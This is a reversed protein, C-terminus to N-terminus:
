AIHEQRQTAAECQLGEPTLGTQKAIRALMRPGLQEGDHFAFVFDSYGARSLTRHSGTQRKVHWGLRMLAQLLVRSSGVALSEGRPPCSSILPCPLPEGNEVHETPVRLALVEARSM